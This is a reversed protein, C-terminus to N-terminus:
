PLSRAAPQPSSSSSPVRPWPDLLSLLSLGAWLLFPTCAPESSGSRDGPRKHPSQTANGLPAGSPEQGCLPGLPRGPPEPRPRGPDEPPDWASWGPGPRPHPLPAGAGCLPEPLPLRACLPAPPRRSPAPLGPGLLAPRGSPPPSSPPRASPAPQAPQAPAARGSRVQNDM